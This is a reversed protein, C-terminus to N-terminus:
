GVKKLFNEFMIRKVYENRKPESLKKYFDLSEDVLGQMLTDFAKNFVFRKNSETNDGVHVQLLEEDEKLKTQIKELSLRDEDTLDSGFSDNLVEIIHSLLDKPEEAVAGGVETSFPKLEGDEEELSISQTYKKQIRFSDLDVFSFVDALRETTRKPLKKNLFRLFIYLKELNIDKFTIIQAIYGYLRIFSQIQHRFDEREEEELTKWDDVVTDLLPQILENEYNEDYFKEVLDNVTESHFLDYKKVEQEISYLKNPNTEEVLLTGQYYPQFSEQIINPDNVFDMAFTDTKSRTTRNLRSLTQVCQLGNMRKDVYMTHLLPEDFGTQFKNNVILIRYQPDKFNEQTLKESFGNMSTETHEIHSDSDLITGSFAVLARFPSGIAKLQKDIELKYKVCHLRSRTVLMARGKGSIKKSTHSNFHELIIKSKETITHPHIDVFKVLMKKVRSEPLEKDEEIKKNLKFYRQYTTYNQLVDLTFGEAISQKMSYSDFPLFQGVDNKRGFIELTKNKPTGSFGFYSIHSQSGRTIIEDMILQDLATLDEKGEGEQFEDLVSKSLSKKLHKSTEGSQSSHVEDIIVGFSKSKLKAIEESIVPFKQVTTIILSKGDELFGKLQQSNKDVANVVGKVQELQKITTRIQKDLIRRDTIVIITDFMRKTDTRTRYLSTLLHALWGISLSKGSGTTHQILYNHGVDETIVAEKLRQIVNLQHFRPFILIESKKEKIKGLKADYVKEIEIRIHVFSEILELINNPQLIHEWLYSTKHGNPNVPNEIGRNYPLFKTNGGSLRTAMSVKENGVALYVLNRKFRFLPEKKDRDYQWQKEANLHTQGTLTNKLEMMVIPIGNIFLGMDISNENQKSYKLQRMVSFQNEKYLDKHDPNLGSKPQFYVLTFNCGRDKVGKRLVDIVGRSEIESSVRKILKSETESGYQLELKALTKPQTKQIFGILETPILCLSKDYTTPHASTYSSNLLHEEIHEEFDQELYNKMYNVM